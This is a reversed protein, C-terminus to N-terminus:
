LGKVFLSFEGINIFDHNELVQHFPSEKLCPVCMVKGGNASVHNELFRKLEVADRPKAEKTHMWILFMPLMSVTGILVNDRSLAHSPFVLTHGDDRGSALIAAHEEATQIPKIKM